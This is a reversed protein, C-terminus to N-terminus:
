ISNIIRLLKIQVSNFSFLDEINKSISQNDFSRCLAKLISGYWEENNNDCLIGNQSNIVEPLIGVSNAIVPTGTILSEVGVISFTEYDSGHLFFDAQHFYSGLEEHRISGPFEIEFSWNRRKVEELIPGKGVITLKLTYDKSLKELAELFPFPNKPKQWNSIALFRRTESPEKEKYGFPPDVVNPVVDIKEEPYYNKVMDKLVESVVIMREVYSLMRKAKFRHIDEELFTRFYSWHEIHILKLKWAKAIKWAVIGSPFLVNSIVLDFNSTKLDYKRLVYRLYWVQFFICYYLLKYFRSELTIRIENFTNNKEITSSHRFVKQSPRIDFAIVTLDTIAALCKAHNEIFIGKYHDVENPYWHAVFLVRKEKYYTTGM